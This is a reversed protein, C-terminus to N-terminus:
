ISQSKVSITLDFGTALWAAYEKVILISLVEPSNRDDRKENKPTDKGENWEKKPPNYRHHIKYRWTLM